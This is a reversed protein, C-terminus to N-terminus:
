SLCDSLGYGNNGMCGFTEPGGVLGVPFVYPFDQVQGM